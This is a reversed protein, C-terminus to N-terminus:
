MKKRFNKLLNGRSDYIYTLEPNGSSLGEIIAVKARTVFIQTRFSYIATDGVNVNKGNLLITGYYDISESPLEEVDYKKELLNDINNSVLAHKMRSRAYFGGGFCFAKGGFIHSVESVYVLAPKEPQNNYAHMPTTGTLAHGPEGHTIGYKKLLPISTCCTASPGNIQWIDFGLKTLVEKAKILTQVNHTAKIKNSEYDYLFCPFSTIGAISVNKLKGIKKAAKQLDNLKIGGYQGPYLNDNEDVVRLLINQKINLIEAAESIEKAKEYSFCTIVDPNMKLSNLIDCKPIQVLHGIHGLKLGNKYLTKAEDIDVAVAKNIGTKEIAKAIVPNRGFQKTMYYLLIKYKDATEKLIKSNQYITDLDIVYTNPEILKNRHLRFAELILEPNRKIAADLFM